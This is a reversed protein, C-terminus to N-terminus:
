GGLLTKTGVAPATTSSTGGAFINALAGKRRRIRDLENRNQTADDITPPQPQPPVDPSSPTLAKSLMGLGSYKRILKGTNNVFSSM